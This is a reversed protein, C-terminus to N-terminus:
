DVAAYRGIMPEISRNTFDMLEKIIRELELLTIFHQEISRRLLWDIRFLRQVL